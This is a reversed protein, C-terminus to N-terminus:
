FSFVFVAISILDYFANDVHLIHLIYLCIANIVPM